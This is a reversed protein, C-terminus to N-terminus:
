RGRHCSGSSITVEEWCGNSNQKWRLGDSLKHNHPPPGGCGGSSSGGAPGQAGPAGPTGPAGPGSGGAGSNCPCIAMLGAGASILGAGLAALALAAELDGDMLAGAALFLLAIGAAILASAAAECAFCAISMLGTPDTNTLPNNAAFSYWNVGDMALDRTIFRGSQADYYRHGLLYLGTEYDKYYGWQAGFGNYPDADVANTNVSGFADCASSSIINGSADMRQATNGSPDFSYLIDGSGTHRALLNGTATTNCATVNGNADVECVPIVDGFSYVFYTRGNANQKWVRKGAYDYGATLVNGVATLQCNANFTLANGNWASPNGDGDYTAGTPENASNFTRAAGRFTTANGAQDYGYNNTYGGVRSSAEQTLQFANDYSYTTTGSCVPAAPLNSHMGMHNGLTDHHIASFDSLGTHMMDNKVNALETMWGLANYTYSM